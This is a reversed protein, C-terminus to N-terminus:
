SFFRLIRKTIFITIFFHGNMHAWLKSFALFYMLISFYQGLGGFVTLNM